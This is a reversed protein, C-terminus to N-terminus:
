TLLFFQFRPDSDAGAVICPRTAPELAVVLGQVLHCCPAPSFFFSIPPFTPDKKEGQNQKEM